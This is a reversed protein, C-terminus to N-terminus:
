FGILFRVLHIESVIRDHQDRVTKKAVLGPISPSVLTESRREGEAGFSASRALFVEISKGEVEYIGGSENLPYFPEHGRASKPLASPINITKTEKIVKGSLDRKMRVEELVVQSESKELLKLAVTSEDVTGNAENDLHKHSVETGLPFLTWCAYVPHIVQEMGVQPQLLKSNPCDGCDSEVTAGVTGSLSSPGCGACILTTACVSLPLLFSTRM